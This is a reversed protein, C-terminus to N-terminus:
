DRVCPLGLEDREKERERERYIYIYRDRMGDRALTGVWSVSMVQCVLRPTRTPTELLPEEKEGFLAQSTPTRASKTSLQHLPTVAPRPRTAGLVM